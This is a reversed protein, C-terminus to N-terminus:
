HVALESCAKRALQQSLKTLMAKGKTEFFHSDDLSVTKLSKTKSSVIRGNKLEIAEMTMTGTLTKMNTSLTKIPKEQAFLFVRVLLDTNVLRGLRAFDIPQLNSLLRKVKKQRVVSDNLIALGEQNLAQNVISYAAPPNVRTKQKGDITEFESQVVLFATKEDGCSKVSMPKLDLNLQKWQNETLQVTAQTPEFGDMEVTVQVQRAELDPINLIRQNDTVGRFEDNIKVRANEVNTIVQLYGKPAPPALQTHKQNSANQRTLSGPNFIFEGTLSSSEWPIQAGESAQRIQNRVRKFTQEITLNQQKLAGLLYGTYLGNRGSGDSAVQGPATAYAILSGVPGDMRALGQQISRFRSAFPNNRCADLIVINVDNGATEMKRLVASADISEDEIEDPATLDVQVPILYNRGKLQVGHGAYYFLGVDVKKLREGFERIVHRMHKRDLDTHLMVDFGLLKLQAAMDNADNVPNSLPNGDYQSNGIVLALRKEVGFASVQYCCFVLVILFLKFRDLFM